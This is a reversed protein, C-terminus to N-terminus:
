PTGKRSSTPRRYTTTAASSDHCSAGETCILSSRCANPGSFANWKTFSGPAVFELTRAHGNTTETDGQSNAQTDGNARTDENATRPAQSQTESRSQSNRQPQRQGPNRSRHTPPDTRLLRPPPPTSHCPTARCSMLWGALPELCRSQHLFYTVRLTWHRTSRAHRSLRPRSGTTTRKRTCTENM